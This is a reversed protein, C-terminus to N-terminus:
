RPATNAALDVVQDQVEGGEHIDQLGQVVVREGPSLGSLVRWRNAGADEVQVSRAVVKHDAGVVMAVPQGRADRAVALQPLLLAQEDVGQGLLARVYMGPLLRGDPNPFVARLAITGTSDGVAIGTFELRGQGPYSSGDDLQLRVQAAEKGARQLKGAALQARLKLVDGAPQVLDVYIPDTQTVTTLAAEQNATVLAGETYASTATRGAIPSRVHTYDLNIRAAELAARATAQDAEAQKHLATIDDRDQASVDGRVALKQYREFKLRVTLENADARAVAAQAADVAAQYTAPDLEYLSQGAQVFAGEVYLRRVIIGNVRPRVQAIRYAVTRGPLVTSLELRAPQVVVVGVQPAGGQPPGQKGASCGALALALLTCTGTALALHGTRANPTHMMDTPM